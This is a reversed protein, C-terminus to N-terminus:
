GSPQWGDAAVDLFSRSGPFAMRQIERHEREVPSRSLRVLAAYARMMLLREEAKMRVQPAAGGRIRCVRGGNIAYCRCPQGNKRRAACRLAQRTRAM